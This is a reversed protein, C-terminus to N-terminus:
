YGAPITIEVVAGSFQSYIRGEAVVIEEEGKAAQSTGLLFPSVDTAYPICHPGLGPGGFGELM